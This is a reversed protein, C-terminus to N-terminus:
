RAEGFPNAMTSSELCLCQNLMLLKGCSQKAGVASNLNFSQRPMRLKNANAWHYLFESVVVSHKSRIQVPRELRNSIKIQRKISQSERSVQAIKTM